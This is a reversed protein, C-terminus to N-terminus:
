KCDSVAAGCKEPEDEKGCLAACLAVAVIIVPLIGISTAKDPVVETMDEVVVPGGAFAMPASLALAGVFVPTLFKNMKEGM